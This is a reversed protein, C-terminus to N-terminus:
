TYRLGLTSKATSCKVAVDLTVKKAKLPRRVTVVTGPARAMVAGVYDRGPLTWEVLFSGRQLWRTTVRNHGLLREGVWREGM